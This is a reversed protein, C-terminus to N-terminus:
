KDCMVIVVVVVSGNSDCSWDKGSEPRGNPKTMFGNLPFGPDGPIDFSTVALTALTKRGDERSQCQLWSAIPWMVIVM